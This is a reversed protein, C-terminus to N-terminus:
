RGKFQPKRKEIFASLGEKHDETNGAKIQYEREVELQDEFKNCLGKNYAIKTMALGKIPLKSLKEAIAWSASEFEDDPFYKYIMGMREAEAASIKDGLMTIALAKQFGILRPLTYTGGTDPILGIASFAQIFSASEKAVIIDCVLAM